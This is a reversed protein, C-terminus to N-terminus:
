RYMHMYMYTCTDMWGDLTDSKSRRVDVLYRLATLFGGKRM